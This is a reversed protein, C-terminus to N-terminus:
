TKSLLMFVPVRVVVAKKVKAGRSFRTSILALGQIGTAGGYSGGKYVFIQKNSTNNNKNNNNDDDKKHNGIAEKRTPLFDRHTALKLRSRRANCYV